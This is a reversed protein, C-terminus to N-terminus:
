DSELQASALFTLYFSVIIKGRKKLFISLNKKVIITIKALFRHNLHKMDTFNGDQNTAQAEQDVTRESATHDGNSLSTFSSERFGAGMRGGGSVDVKFRGGDGRFQFLMGRGLM